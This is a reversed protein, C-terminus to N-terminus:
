GGTGNTQLFEYFRAVVEEPTSKDPGVLNAILALQSVYRGALKNQAVRPRRRAM